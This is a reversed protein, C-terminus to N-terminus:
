RRRRKSQQQALLPEDFDLTSQSDKGKGGTIPMPPLPPERRLEEPTPPKRTRRSAESRAAQAAQLSNLETRIGIDAGAILEGVTVIQLQHRSQGFLEVIPSRQVELRMERTPTNICVFIGLAAGERQVVGALDRVMGPNVNQGAKVSVVATAYDRPGTKFIIVGDVGRDAGRGRPQGGLRGVSWQQFTYPDLRALARAEVEGSPIGGVEYCANPLWTSLRDQIVLIAAYSVDIGIWRRGLTEAAHITTGCGCFPDLILDGPMTSAAIIRELLAQPKQTPYGLRERALNHLPAIDTILDQAPVGAQEDLYRKLQPVGGAKAPWHIRGEHDLLDLQSPPVMWHRGKATVNIGRWIQGTAGNRVGAGTLDSRRWKRGDADRHTYFEDIYTQDYPQFTKNWTYERSKTYFLIIDHVPGWRRASSHASTRKWIIESRFAEPGFIADLVIKLYHSATPDCHLYLSATPSMVRRLEILRLSMMVLYAMMDSEGLSTQLAHLIRYVQGDIRRVEDLTISAADEVWSWTDKFAKLQGGAGDGAPTKYLLNYTANSNFPPDLYVLQVSEDAVHGRLVDLNDGFYLRNM